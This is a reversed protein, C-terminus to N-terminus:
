IHILSLIPHKLITCFKRGNAAGPLTGGTASRVGRVGRAVGSDVEDYGCYPSLIVMLM